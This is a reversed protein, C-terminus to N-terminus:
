SSSGAFRLRATNDINVGLKRLALAAAFCAVAVLVGVATAGNWVFKAVYWLCRPLLSLTQAWVLSSYVSYGYLM